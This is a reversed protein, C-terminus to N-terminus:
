QRQQFQQMMQMMREQLQAQVREMEMIEGDFQEKVEERTKRQVEVLKNEFTKTTTTFKQEIVRLMQLSGRARGSGTPQDSGFAQPRGASAM